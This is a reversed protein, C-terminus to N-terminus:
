AGKDGGEIVVVPRRWDSQFAERCNWYENQVQPVLTKAEELRGALLEDRLNELSERLQEAAKTAEANMRGTRLFVGVQLKRTLLDWNQLQRIAEEKHGSNVATLAEVRVRNIEAFAEPPAPYYIYLAVISFIVLGVLCTFGLVPAPVPVNWVSQKIMAPPKTSLYDEVRGTPDFCFLALGLLVLVTMGAMSVPELVEIKEAIKVAAMKPAITTGAAFPNTWDDFAHTHNAEEKAFYLPRESAYALAVTAATIIALWVLIRRWGYLLALWTILGVNLGIGLEFLVFSAGVSNGHEFMLGLRMMGQLPGLYAPLAFGTMEVPALWDDHKMTQQLVGHPLLGALLGTFFIGILIFGMTSSVTEGAAATVVAGLRRVGPVPTPDLSPQREDNPSEFWRDWVAGALLALALSGVAFCIVVVPESLTLGYLLSLPNIHPAALVFALITGSRVGARRMERAIPIVGLSCVPLLTGVGWARLLGRWGPGGFLKRTNESGIMRRMVGAILFGCLVTTSSEALSQSIRIFIGWLLSSMM